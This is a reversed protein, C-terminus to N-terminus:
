LIMLIEGNSIFKEFGMKAKEILKVLSQLHAVNNLFQHELLQVASARESTNIQLCKDMFDHCNVSVTLGKDATVKDNMMIKVVVDEPPKGGIM